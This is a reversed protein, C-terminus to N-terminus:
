VTQLLAEPFMLRDPEPPLPVLKPQYEPEQPPVAIPVPLVRIIGLGVVVVVYQPLFWVTVQPFEPQLLRVIDITPEAGM